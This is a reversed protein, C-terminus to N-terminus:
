NTGDMSLITCHERTRGMQDSIARSIHSLVKAVLSIENVSNSCHSFPYCKKKKNFMPITVALNKTDKM